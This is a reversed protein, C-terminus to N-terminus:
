EKLDAFNKAETIEILAASFCMPGHETKYIATEEKILKLAEFENINNGEMVKSIIDVFPQITEKYGSGLTEKVATQVAKLKNLNQFTTQAM